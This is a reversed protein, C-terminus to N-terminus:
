IEINDIVEKKIKEEYRCETEKLCNGCFMKKIKNM